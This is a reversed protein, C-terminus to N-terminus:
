DGTESGEDPFIQPFYSVRLNGVGYPTLTLEDADDTTSFKQPPEEALSEGGTTDLGLYYGKYGDLRETPNQVRFILGANGSKATTVDAELVFDAVDLDPAVAKGGEVADVSLTGDGSSWGDSYTTWDTLDTVPIEEGDLTRLEVNAFTAASKYTRAGITGRPQSDDQISLTPEDAGDVYIKISAGNAVIRLHHSESAKLPVSANTIPFWGSDSVGIVTSGGHTTLDWDSVQKGRAEISLPTHTPSFPAGDFATETVSLQEAPDDRNLELAYNWHSDPRVEYSDFEEYFNQRRDWTEQVDLSFVLPGREIGISDNNWQSTQLEMPLSLVYSDGDKWRRELTYFTGAELDDHVVNAQDPIKEPRGHEAAAPPLRLIRADEAWQPVRLKLPFVASEGKEMSVSLRITERFPYGTEETITVEQGDAVTATVKSPGYAIAALGNDDTGAWLNQVFKPWGMHWNYCCCPFGSHPSRMLADAYDQEYGHAEHESEVQNPLQYYSIQELSPSTHAPLSNYAVTEMQDALEADGFNRTAIAQSLMREVDACLEVGATSKKSSLMETGSFQGDIRGYQRMLHDIGVAMATRDSSAGTQQWVVSPFKLAQTVNVIHHPHFSNGGRYGTEYFLNDAYIRSWPLAQQRLTDALNLLFDDGTVNYLWLVVDINDAARAQGWTELPREPLQRQQFRFYNRLFQLVRGDGTAEYYDRMIYLVIMRPWWDDTPGFDGDDEQSALFGDIWKQATEKSEEDDLTYALALLGKVYYPGKEWSEGDGGLWASNDSIADYLEDASGTLGSKQRELQDQLWGKPRVSGLPLRVFPTEQLPARNGVYFENKTRTSGGSVRGAGTVAAGAAMSNKLFNRRSFRMGRNDRGSESETATSSESRSREYEEM